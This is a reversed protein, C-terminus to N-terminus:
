DCWNDLEWHDSLLEAAQSCLNRSYSLIESTLNKTWVQEMVTRLALLPSYDANGVWTFSSHFGTETGHSVIPHTIINAWPEGHLGTDPNCWLFGTGRPALFWKHFNGVFFDPLSMPDTQVSDLSFNPVQGLTHAGDILVKVGHSHCMSTLEAIPLKLATNSTIHDFVALSIGPNAMLALEVQGLIYGNFSTTFEDSRGGTAEECNAGTLGELIPVEVVSNQTNDHKISGGYHRAMAKDAGYGCDLFLVQDLIDHRRMSSLVANIATTANSTLVVDRPQADLVNTAAMRTVRVLEPLLVRDMFALPQREAEKRWGEAAQLGHLIPAGFAGHNLFTCGENIGFLRSRARQGFDEKVLDVDTILPSRNDPVCEDFETQTMNIMDEVSHDVHFSGFGVYGNRGKSASTTLQRVIHTGTRYFSTCGRNIVWM